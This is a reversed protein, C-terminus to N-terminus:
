SVAASIAWKQVRQNATGVGSKEMRSEPHCFGKQMDIVLLATVRPDIYAEIASM